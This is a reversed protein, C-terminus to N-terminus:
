EAVAHMEMSDGWGIADLAMEAAICALRTAPANVWGPRGAWRALSHVLMSNSKSKIGIVRFGTRVLLSRMGRRSFHHLHFPLHYWARRGLLVTMASPIQPVAVLLYGGPGLLRHAMRLEEAPDRLHELVHSFRLVDFSEGQRALEDLTAARVDLGLARAPAAAEEGVETGVVDVGASAAFRLFECSGCGVDLLRVRRGQTRRAIVDTYLPALTVRPILFSSLLRRLPRLARSRSHFVRATRTGWAVRLRALPDVAAVAPSPAAARSGYSAYLRAQEAASPWPDTRGTGCRPCRVIAYQADGGADGALGRLAAVPALADPGCTACGIL